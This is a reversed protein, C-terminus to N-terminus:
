LTELGVSVGSAALLAVVVLRWAVLRGTVGCLMVVALAAGLADSALDCLSCNRGPVFSQHLEDIVGYAVAILWAARSRYGQLTAVPRRSWALWLSGAVAAYAIVHMSNHLLAMMVSHPAASSERSSLWWILGMLALPVLARLFQPLSVWLDLVTVLGNPPEIPFEDRVM